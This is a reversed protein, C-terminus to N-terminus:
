HASGSGRSEVLEEQNWQWARMFAPPATKDVGVVANRRMTQGLLVTGPLFRITETSSVVTIRYRGDPRINMARWRGKNNTRRAITRGTELHEILVLAGVVPRKGDDVVRGALDATIKSGLDARAPPPLALLLILACLAALLHIHRHM